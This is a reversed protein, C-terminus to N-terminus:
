ENVLESDNGEKQLGESFVSLGRQVYNLKKIAAEAECKLALQKFLSECYVCRNGM